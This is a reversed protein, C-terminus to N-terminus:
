PSIIQNLVKMNKVRNITSDDADIPWKLKKRSFLNLLEDKCKDIM